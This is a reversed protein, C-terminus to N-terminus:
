AEARTQSVLMAAGVMLVAATEIRLTGPGLDVRQAGRENMATIEEDTFGAEPGVLCTVRAPPEEMGVNWPTREPGAALAKILAEGGPHAFLVTARHQMDRDVLEVPTAPRHIEPLTARRSQKCAEILIRRWREAANPGPEVVGRQCLLPTFSTMGGQAAMGLMTAARDGKPLAAALHILVTPLPAAEVSRVRATISTRNPGEEISAHALGGRGDFLVVDDGPGLRRSGAAHRAERADLAIAGGPGPLVEVFFWPLHLNAVPSVSIV